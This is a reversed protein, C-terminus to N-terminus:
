ELHEEPMRSFIVVDDLYIIYWNLHLDGLCTEMLRQFTAPANRLRFPMKVCEYFGLLGVTFATLPISEPDMKVQWYGAKLNISTFTCSGNLSDLSDEIRPLSYADKLTRANLKRLDICFRLSGDKKRVLVVASAWPSNSKWIAGIELMENLHKRVEEYQHPPIRRYREKFPVYNDLKIVHKVLDTKGLELDDVAFIHNHKVICERVM